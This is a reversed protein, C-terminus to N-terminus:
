KQAESLKKKVNSTSLHSVLKLANNITKNPIVIKKNM